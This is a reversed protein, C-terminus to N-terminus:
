MNMSIGMKLMNYASLKSFSYSFHLGFPAYNIDGGITGIVLSKTIMTGISISYTDRMDQMNYRVGLNGSLEKANLPMLHYRASAAVELTRQSAPAMQLAGTLAVSGPMVSKIGKQGYQVIGGINDATLAILYPATRQFIKHSDRYVVGAHGGGTFAIRGIYSQIFSGGVYGSWQQNVRFAYMADVSYDFPKLPKRQGYEDERFTDIGKYYRYGALIAHNPHFKWSAAVSQLHRLNEGIFSTIVTGSYGASVNTERNFLSTPNSYLYLGRKAEAMRIDGMASSSPDPNIELFPLARSSQGFSATGLALLALTGFIIKSIYKMM